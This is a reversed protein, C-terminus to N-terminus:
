QSFADLTLHQMSFRSLNYTTENNGWCHLSFYLTAPYTFPQKSGPPNYCQIRNNVVTVTSDAPANLTWDTGLPGVLDNEIGPPDGGGEHGTLNPAKYQTITYPM